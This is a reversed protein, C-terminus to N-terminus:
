RRWSRGENDDDDDEDDHLLAEESLGPELELNGELELLSSDILHDEDSESVLVTRTSTRGSLPNNLQSNNSWTISLTRDQFNKGKLLANEADKRAKYNLVISPTVSDSIYDVIEGFESFHALVNEQEDAEYGSVLIKTTRHDVAHKPFVLKRQGTPSKLNGKLGSNDILNNKTLLHRSMPNFRRGRSARRGTLSVRAKLEIVKKQLESTDVGEQQKTILDLEADLVEKQVEEKSKRQVTKVTLTPQSMMDKRIAETAEQSKKITKLLLERQPGAPTKEMKEILLKQQALQKELLEQKRKRLDQTIKLAEKRKEEQNKKLKEKAALLEQGKKIAAAAQVKTEEKTVSNVSNKTSNIKENAADEANDAKPQVLNLVKNANPPVTNPVGLRDKVSRPPVNEQKGEASSSHWFVKIFRNNLVAETSRYAANAEAHSSFTVIAAEPDGEYFVQINVIKGFKSFHNNLHTINNLGPPVKKLELSCNAPNKTRPGLRNYDFAKKKFLSDQQESDSQSFQQRPFNNGFQEQPQNDMVPVSILERQLSSQPMFPGMQPLRPGLMARPGRFGPRHWMQPAQPNYEPMLPRPQIHHIAPHGPGTIIPPPIMPPPADNLPAGNPGFTLVRTLASDELVVPDVGHDYPCMEGRMCFGKEDYDRCRKKPTRNGSNHVVVSQISQTTNTLRLDMDGHNSDQTPTGATSRNDKVDKDNRFNEKRDKRDISRSRSRSNSRPPSRNRYRGRYNHRPSRSRSRVRNPGPSPSRTRRRDYRRPPSKNRYARPRDRKERYPERSKERSRSRRNREWSRSRSRNRSLSRHRSRKRPKDEKESESKRERKLDDKKVVVATGNVAESLNPLESVPIIEKVEKTKPSLPPDTKIINPNPPNTSPIVPTLYDRSELTKFLLNVFPETELQLFVELQSIMSQRLAEPSKDKKVLAFVYKALAGPDAECIPKLVATLWSKFADADDIIM